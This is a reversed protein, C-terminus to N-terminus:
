RIHIEHLDVFECGAYPGGTLLHSYGPIRAGKELVLQCVGLGSKDVVEATIQQDGIAARLDAVSSSITSLDDPLLVKRGIRIM